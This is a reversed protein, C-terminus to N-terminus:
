KVIQVHRDTILIEIPIGKHKFFEITRILGEKEMHCCSKVENSQVLQEDVVLGEKLDLMSYCGYKASHGPTDYRGDGSLTLSTKQDVIEKVYFSQWTHWVHGIAIYLYFKQHNMFKSISISAVNTFQLLRLGKMPTLGSFLIDVSLILNFCSTQKWNITSQVVSVCINM